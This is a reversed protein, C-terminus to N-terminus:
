KDTMHTCLSPLLPPRQEEPINHLTSQYNTSKKVRSSPVSVSDWFRPLESAILAVYFGLLSFVKNLNHCFGLIVCLQYHNYVYVIFQLSAYHKYCLLIKYGVCNM